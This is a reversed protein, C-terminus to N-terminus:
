EAVEDELLWGNMSKVLLTIKSVDEGPVWDRKGAVFYLYNVWFM